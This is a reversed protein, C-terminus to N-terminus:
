DCLQLDRILDKPLAYVADIERLGQYGMLSLAAIGFFTHFIDVMDDPRDSIGGRHEDQANLIFCTLAGQDIWHIKDLIKLASLAWWSYCVDQLKEPRGQLGGSPTQREMLRCVM